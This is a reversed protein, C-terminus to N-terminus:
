QGDELMARRYARRGEFNWGDLQRQSWNEQPLQGKRFAERGLQFLNVPPVFNPQRMNNIVAELTQTTMTVGAGANALRKQIVREDRSVSEPEGGVGVPLIDGLGVVSAGEDDCRRM